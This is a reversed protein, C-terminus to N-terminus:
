HAITWTTPGAGAAQGLAQDNDPAVQGPRRHRYMMTLLIREDAGFTTTARQTSPFMLDQRRASHGLGLGHGVEHLLSGPVRVAGASRFVLRVSVIRADSQAVERLAFGITDPTFQAWAPDSPDIRITMLPADSPVLAVWPQVAAIVDAPFDRPVTVTTTPWRLLRNGAGPESYVLTRVFAEDASVPWLTLIADRPVITDRRLYGAREVTVPDGPGASVPGGAVPAGTIGDVVQAPGSPAAPGGGGGCGSPLALIALLLGLRRV